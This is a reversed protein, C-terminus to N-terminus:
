HSPVNEGAAGSVLNTLLLVLFLYHEQFVTTNRVNIM